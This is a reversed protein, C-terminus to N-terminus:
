WRKQSKNFARTLKKIKEKAHQQQERTQKVAAQKSAMESMEKEMKRYSEFRSADLTGDDLAARVACSPEDVHRCDGFRCQAILTEIDDFADRLGRDSVLLQLERMGPTDMVLGGGPLVILERHTTTHKGRDDGSRVEGTRQAERGLLRNIITSKGVGSSGLLAVTQGEGIFPLLAEIGESRKASMLLVPVGPAVREVEGVREAFEESMDAKNLIIVPHAGSEWAMILYREIRRPNFDNDLGSVLFVTDINAAVIQEETRTGAAKRSFKSKRPLVAHIRYNGEGKPARMAIWDGVAPLDESGQAHYRLRGTVEAWVEGQETQVLYVKNHQLFVRGPLLGEAAFPEFHEAFFPNWGLTERKLADTRGDRGPTRKQVDHAGDDRRM